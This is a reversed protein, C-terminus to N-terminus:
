EQGIDSFEQRSNGGVVSMGWRLTVIGYLYVLLLFSRFSRTGDQLRLRLM